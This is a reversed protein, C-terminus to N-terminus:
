GGVGTSPVLQTLPNFEPKVITFNDSWNPMFNWTIANSDPAELGGITKDGIFLSWVPFGHFDEGTKDCAIQGNGNILFVGIQGAECMLAKMAKIITQPLKKFSATFPTSESGLIEVIGGPTANGGGYTLAAGAEVTPEYIYPTVVVKTGDKASLLSTWTTLKVISKAAMTNATGATKELRQFALKQVQGFNGPCSFAPIDPLAAGLPCDCYLM